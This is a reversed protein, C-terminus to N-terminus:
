LIVGKAMDAVNPYNARARERERERLDYIHQVQIRQQSQAHTQTISKEEHTQAHKPGHEKIM